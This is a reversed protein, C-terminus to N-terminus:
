AAQGLAAAVAPVLGRRAARAGGALTIWRRIDSPRGVMRRLARLPHVTGDADVVGRMDPLVDDSRDTVARIAAFPVGARACARAAGASEMDVATGRLRGREGPTSAVGTTTVLTGRRGGAGATLRPDCAFVDGTVADRVHDPVVVDGRGLAPDLAGCFGVSIAAVAGDAIATRAAAEAPGSGMGSVILRVTPGAFRRLMREEAPVACVLAVVGDRM